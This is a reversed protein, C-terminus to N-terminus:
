IIIQFGKYIVFSRLNELKSFLYMLDSQTANMCQVCNGDSNNRVEESIKNLTEYFATINSLFDKRLNSFMSEPKLNCKECVIKQQNKSQSTLEDDKIFYEDFPDRISLQELVQLIEVMLRLMQMSTQTYKTEIYHSLIVSDVNYENYLGTLVGSLCISNTLDADGKCEKCESIMTMAQSDSLVHYKCVTRQAHERSKNEKPV